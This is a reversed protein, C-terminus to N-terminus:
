QRPRGQEESDNKCPTDVKADEHKRVTHSEDEDSGGRFECSQSESGTREGVADCGRRHLLPPLPLKTRPQWNFGKTSRKCDLAEFHITWAAQGDRRWCSTSSLICNPSSHGPSSAKGTLSLMYPLVVVIAFKSKTHKPRCSIATLELHGKVFLMGEDYINIAEDESLFRSARETM